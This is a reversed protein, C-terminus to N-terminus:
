EKEGKMRVLEGIGNESSLIDVVWLWDVKHQNVQDPHRVIFDRIQKDSFQWVGHKGNQTGKLWGREIWQALTRDGCRFAERLEILNLKDNDIRSLGLHAARQRVSGISRNLKKAIGSISTGGWASKLYSLEEEKWHKKRKQHVGLMEAWDHITHRPVNFRKSLRRVCDPTSDYADLFFRKGEEDLFYKKEPMM